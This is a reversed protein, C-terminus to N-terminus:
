RSAYPRLRKYKRAIELFGKVLPSPNQRHVFGFTYNGTEHPIAVVDPDLPDLLYDFYIANGLATELKKSVLDHYRKYVVGHHPPEIQANGYCDTPSKSLLITQGEFDGPCVREKQTLPHTQSVICYLPSELVPFYELGYQAITPTNFSECLDLKSDRLEALKTNSDTYVITLAMQPYAKKYEYSIQYLFTPTIEHSTGIRLEHGASLTDRCGKVLSESYSLLNRAGAYLYDGAPTLSVGQHNRYFLPVGVTQELIQIQQLLAQASIHMAKAAKSFSGHDAISIFSKLHTPNM